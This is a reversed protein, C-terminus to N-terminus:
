VEASTRCINVTARTRYNASFYTNINVNECFPPEMSGWPVGEPDAVAQAILKFTNFIQPKTMLVHNCCQIMCYVIAFSLSTTAFYVVIFLPDSGPLFFKFIETLMPLFVIPWLIWYITFSFEEGSAGVLQDMTFPIVCSVYLILSLGGIVIRTYTIVAEMIIIMDLTYLVIQIAKLM